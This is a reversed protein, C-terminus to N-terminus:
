STFKIESIIDKGLEYNIAARLGSRNMLLEHRLSANSVGVFLVGNRVSPAGCQSAIFDGVIKGWLGAAKLEQMRNQLSTEELLQRLVDGVCEPDHRKM